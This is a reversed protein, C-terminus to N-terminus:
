NFFGKKREKERNEVYPLLKDARECILKLREATSTLRFLKIKEEMTPNQSAFDFSDSVILLMAELYNQEDDNKLVVVLENSSITNMSQKSQGNSETIVTIAQEM